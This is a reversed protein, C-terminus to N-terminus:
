APDDKPNEFDADDDDEVEEIEEDLRTGEGDAFESEGPTYGREEATEEERNEQGEPKQGGQSQGPNVNEEEQLQDQNEM